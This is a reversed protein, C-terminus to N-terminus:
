EYRGGVTQGNAVDFTPWELKGNKLKRPKVGFYSGQQSYRKLVTQPKVFWRKAFEKTSLGCQYAAGTELERKRVLM